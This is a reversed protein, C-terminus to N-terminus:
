KGRAQLEQQLHGDKEIGYIPLRVEFIMDFILRGIFAPVLTYASSQSSKDLASGIVARLTPLLGDDVQHNRQVVTGSGAVKCIFGDSSARIGKVLGQWDDYFKCDDIETSHISNSSNGSRIIVDDFPYRPVTLSQAINTDPVAPYASEVRKGLTTSADQSDRRYVIPQTTPTSDVVILEKDSSEPIPYQLGPDRYM